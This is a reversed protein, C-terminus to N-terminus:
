RRPPYPGWRPRWRHHEIWVSSHFAARRKGFARFCRRSMETDTVTRILEGACLTRGICPPSKAIMFLMEYHRSASTFGAEKGHPKPASCRGSPRILKDRLARSWRHEFESIFIMRAGTPAPAEGKTAQVRADLAKRERHPQPRLAVDCEFDFNSHTPHGSIPHVTAREVQPTTQVSEGRVPSATISAVIVTSQGASVEIEAGSTVGKV